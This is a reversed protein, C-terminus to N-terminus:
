SKASNRRYARAAFMGLVVTWATLVTVGQWGVWSGILAQRGAQAVWYMPLAKIVEFIWHPFVTVPVWLGGLLSLLSYVAGSIAQVSEAKAMYGVWIGLAAVPLLALLISLGTMLWRGASLHVHSLLGGALFVLVLSPVAVAFGALGKGAVYARGTLATIRLQRNWGIAREFAIAGGTSFVSSMAGFTAMSVMVYAAVTIGSLHNHSQAAGFAGFLILPMALAFIVYRPDRFKRRVESRMYTGTM